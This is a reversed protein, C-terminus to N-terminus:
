RTAARVYSGRVHGSRLGAARVLLADPNVDILDDLTWGGELHDTVDKNGPGRAHRVVIASPSLGVELLALYTDHAHLIGADDRDMCIVVQPAETLWMAHEAAFHGSRHHTTANCGLGALTDADKEGEAVWVPQGCGIAELLEPLRYILSRWAQPFRWVYEARAHSGSPYSRQAYSFSKPEWRVHVFREIGRDDCYLYQAIIRKRPTM